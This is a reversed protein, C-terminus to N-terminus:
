KVKWNLGIGFTTHSDESTITGNILFDKYKKGIGFTVAEQNDSYGAGACLQLDFSGGDFHCQSASIASAVGQINTYINTVAPAKEIVIHKHHKNDAYATNALLIALFILITTRM